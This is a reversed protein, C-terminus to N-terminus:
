LSLCFKEKKHVSHRLFVIFLSEALVVQAEKERFFLTFSRPLSLFTDMQHIQMQQFHMSACFRM